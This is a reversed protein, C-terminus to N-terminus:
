ASCGFAASGEVGQSGRGREDLVTSGTAGATRGVLFSPSQAKLPVALERFGSASIVVVPVELCRALSADGTWFAAAGCEVASALQLADPSKFGYTARLHTAGDVVAATLDRLAVRSAAFLADYRALLASNRDRMPKTRCELRSLQSTVITASPGLTRLPGDVASRWAPQGEVLYIFCCADLYVDAVAPGASGSM